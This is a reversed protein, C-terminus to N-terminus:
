NVSKCYTIIIIIIIIIISVIDYKYRVNTKDTV